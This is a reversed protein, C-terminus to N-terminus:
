LIKVAENNHFFYIYSESVEIETLEEIAQRYLQVQERYDQILINKMIEDAYFDSKYDILIYKNKELFFCDIIGQILVYDKSSDDIEKKLNFAKERYVRQAALLRKGLKSNMFMAIKEIYFDDLDEQLILNKSVMMDIQDNIEQEINYDKNRFKNFDLHQLIFHITNGRQAGTPHDQGLFKPTNFTESIKILSNGRNKKENKLESVSTKTPMISSSQYKYEWELKFRVEESIEKANDVRQWYDQLDYKDKVQNSKHDEYIQSLKIISFDLIEKLNGDTYQPLKLIVPMIWDLYSKGTSVDYESLTTKWNKSTCQEINNVSGVLYIYDRARSMAVYLVRMEESLTELQLKEKAITKFITPSYRREKINVYNPCIGLDKHAIIPDRIDQLNMKKGLGGIFVVPFELGKSKHISIIRVVDESPGIVKASTLDRKTEKMGEILRIFNFLGKINSESYQKARDILIRINAQRQIGGPMASIYHYYGTDIVLKWIFDNIPMYRCQKKWLKIKNLMNNLKDRLSDNHEAVYSCIAEYISLKSNHIRISTIEEITFSFVPSRLVGIFPIDQYLNDIVKLLQVLLRIELTEFYGTQSEAYVPIGENNLTEYYTESWGRTTRLLIVIDKYCIYRYDNIEQDYIKIKLLEKIQNSIYMAEAEIKNIEMVEESPINDSDNHIISVNVKEDLFPQKSGLYLKAESDYDVEGIYKSMINEFIINIFDIIKKRSRFNQNLAITEKSDEDTKRFSDQKSLFLTPDAMRFRYISQKVDGVFFVNDEKMISTLITDQIENSDQYEDVFIFKYYNKLEKAVEKTQLIELTYHEMDNFDMIRKELKKDRFIKHYKFVLDMLYSMEPLMDMLDEFMYDPANFELSDIIKKVIDKSKNRYSVINEKIDLDECKFSLTAFKVLILSNYFSEYGTHLKKMLNKLQSIEDNLIAMIKENNVISGAISNAIEVQDIASKLKKKTIRIFEKYYISNNFEEMNFTFNKLANQSWQDPFPRNMIFAHMRNIIMRIQEEDRRNNFMELLNFFRDDGKEYEGELLDEMAKDKLIAIQTDDGINLGPDLDIVHFYKKTINLCFSHLTSISASPLNSIQKNIFEREEQNNINSVLAKYLRVRMEEAAAKTFTVVLLKDVDVKDEIIIKVIREVLIATKGSGAAASVLLSKDRTDIAKQQNETWM